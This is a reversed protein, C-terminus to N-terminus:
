SALARIDYIPAGILRNFAGSCADVQDRYRGNPFRDLEDLLELAWDGARLLVNSGQVQAAFPEARVEKSGTVKDAFVRFGALNRITAEASEKGGSGPEQEVGVEYSAAYGGLMSRDQHAWYKIREERELASWHGRAMHGILFQGDRLKHLLAGATYAAYEGVTSNHVLVGNAFFEHEGEVTLDYVAVLPAFGQKQAGCLQWGDVTKAFSRAHSELPKSLWPEYLKEMQVPTGADCQRSLNQIPEMCGITNLDTSVSLIRCNTTIGTETRIIFTMALPYPVTSAPGFTETCCLEASTMGSLIGGTTGQRRAQIAHTVSGMLSSKNLNQITHDAWTVESSLSLNQLEVWRGRDYVLHDPTGTLVVGNSFEVSCLEATWKSLWARKVRRFGRRTLVKDDARVNEIPVDGRNTTILTGAILCAKDWFRVSAQIKTVDWVPLTQIKAVPFMGSADAAAEALFLEKFVHEPLTRQAEAIEDSALVGAEVADYATLKHYALESFKGEEARRALHYFWNSKGKVNGIIRIKGRTATLTSRIAFWADEKFRSAEDIVCAYVDEGYLADPNDGSRFSIIAGNLLVITWPSTLWAQSIEQSLARRMRDFAIKAQLSVPAVWWYNWGPRGKLAQEGLWIIGSATKGSKTSAEICSIRKPDFMAELQKPYLPPRKYDLDLSAQGPM